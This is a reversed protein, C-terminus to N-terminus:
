LGRAWTLFCPMTPGHERKGVGLSSFDVCPPGAVNCDEFRYEGVGDGAFNLRLGPDFIRDRLVQANLGVLEGRVAPPM